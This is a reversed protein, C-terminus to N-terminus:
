GNHVTTNITGHIKQNGGLNDRDLINQMIVTFEMQLEKENDEYYKEGSASKDGGLKKLAYIHPFRDENSVTM